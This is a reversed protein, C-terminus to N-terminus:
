EKRSIIVLAAFSGAFLSILFYTTLRYVNSQADLERLREELERLSIKKQQLESSTSEYKKELESLQQQLLSNQLTLLRASNNCDELKSQLFEIQEKAKRLEEGLKEVNKQLLLNNKEMLAAYSSYNVESKLVEVKALVSDNAYVSKVGSSCNVGVKLLHEGEAAELSSQLNEVFYMCDDSVALLAPGTLNISVIDGPYAQLAALLLLAAFMM